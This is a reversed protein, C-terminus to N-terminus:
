FLLPVWIVHSIQPARCHAAACRLAAARCHAADTVLEDVLGKFANGIIVGVALEIVNGRAIFEKFGQLM